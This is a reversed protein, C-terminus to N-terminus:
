NNKDKAALRAKGLLGAKLQMEGVLERSLFNAIFQELFSYDQAPLKGLLLKRFDKWDLSVYNLGSVLRNTKAHRLSLAEKVLATSVGSFRKSYYADTLLDHCVFVLEAKELNWKALLGGLVKQKFYDDQFLADAAIKELYRQRDVETMSDIFDRGAFFVNEQLFFKEFGTKRLKKWGEDVSYGSVLALHFFPFAKELASLKELLEVANKQKIPRFMALLFCTTM